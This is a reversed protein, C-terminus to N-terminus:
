ITRRTVENVCGRPSFIRRTENEPMGGAQGMFYGKHLTVEDVQGCLARSTSTGGVPRTIKRQQVKGVLQAALPQESGTGKKTPKGNSKASLEAQGLVRWVSSPAGFPRTPPQRSVSGALDRRRAAEM